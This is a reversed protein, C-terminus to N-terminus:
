RGVGLNRPIRGLHYTPQISRSILLLFDTALTVNSLTTLRYEPSTSATRSRVISTLSLSNRTSTPGDPQPFDVANRIIAPSSSIESPVIEMPLLTTFLM